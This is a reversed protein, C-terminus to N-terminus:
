PDGNCNTAYIRLIEVLEIVPDREIPPAASSRRAARDGPEARDAYLRSVM